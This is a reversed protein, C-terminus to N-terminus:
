IIACMGRFMSTLLDSNLVYLSFCALFFSLPLKPRPKLALVKGTSGESGNGGRPNVFSSSSYSGWGPQQGTGRWCSSGVARLGGHCAEVGAILRNPQKWSRGRQATVTSRGRRDVWCRRSSGTAVASKIRLGRRQENNYWRATVRQELRAKCKIRRSRGQSAFIGSSGKGCRAWRLGEIGGYNDRRMAAMFARTKNTLEHIENGVVGALHVM